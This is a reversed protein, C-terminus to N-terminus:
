DSVELGEEGKEELGFIRNDVCVELSMLVGSSLSLWGLSILSCPLYVSSFLIEEM